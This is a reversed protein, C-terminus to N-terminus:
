KKNKLYKKDQETTSSLLEEYLGKMTSDWEMYQANSSRAKEITIGMKGWRPIRTKPSQVEYYIFPSIRDISFAFVANINKLFHFDEYLEYYHQYPGSLIKKAAKLENNNYEKTKDQHLLDGVIREPTEHLALYLLVKPLDVKERNELYPHILTALLPLHGIHELDSECVIENFLDDEALIKQSIALNYRALSLTKRFIKAYDLQAKIIESLLKKSTIAM